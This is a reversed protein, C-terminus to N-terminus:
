IVVLMLGTKGGKTLMFNWQDIHFNIKLKLNIAAYTKPMDEFNEVIM